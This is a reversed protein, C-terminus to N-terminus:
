AKKLRCHLRAFGDDDGAGGAGALGGKQVGKQLFCRRALAEHQDFVRRFDLQVM